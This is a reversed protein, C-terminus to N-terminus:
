CPNIVCTIESAQGQRTTRVVDPNRDFSRVLATKSYKKRQKNDAEDENRKGFSDVHGFKHTNKLLRYRM